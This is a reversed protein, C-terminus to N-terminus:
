EEIAAQRGDVNFDLLAFERCNTVAAESRTGLGACRQRHLVTSVMSLRVLSMKARLREQEADNGALERADGGAVPKRQQAVVTVRDVTRIQQPRRQDSEAAEAVRHKTAALVRDIPRADPLSLDSRRKKDKAVPPGASRVQVIQEGDIAPKSIRVEIFDYEWVSKETRLRDACPQQRQKHGLTTEAVVHGLM